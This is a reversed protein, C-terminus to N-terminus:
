ATKYIRCNRGSQTLQAESCLGRRLPQSRRGMVLVKAPFVVLIPVSLQAVAVFKQETM